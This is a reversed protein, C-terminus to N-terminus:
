FHNTLTSKRTLGFAAQKLLLGCALNKGDRVLRESDM